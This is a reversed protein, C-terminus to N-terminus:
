IFALAAVYALQIYFAEFCVFVNDYMPADEAQNLLAPKAVALYYTVITYLARCEAALRQLM